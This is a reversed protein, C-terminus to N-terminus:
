PILRFMSPKPNFRKRVCNINADMSSGIFILTNKKRFLSPLFGVSIPARNKVATKRTMLM